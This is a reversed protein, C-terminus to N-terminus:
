NKERSRYGAPLRRYGETVPRCGITLSLLRHYGITVSGAMLLTDRRSGRSVGRLGFASIWCGLRSGARVCALRGRWQRARIPHVTGKM